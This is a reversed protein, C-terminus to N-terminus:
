FGKPDKLRWFLSKFALFSLSRTAPPPRSARFPDYARREELEPDGLTGSPVRAGIGLTALL